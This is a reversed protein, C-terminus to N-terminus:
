DRVAGSVPSANTYDDGGPPQGSEERPEHPVETEYEPQVRLLCEAFDDITEFKRDPLGALLGLQTPTAGEAAAYAVLASKEVPLGVGEVVVQLEAIAAFDV